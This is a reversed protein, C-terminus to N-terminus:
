NNPPFEHDNRQFLVSIKLSSILLTRVFCTTKKDYIGAGDSYIYYRVYPNSRIFSPMQEYARGSCPVFHVGLECLERIAAENEQSVTKQPTLLTGDLDSAILKYKFM